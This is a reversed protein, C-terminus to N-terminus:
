GKKLIEVEGFLLNKKKGNQDEVILSGDEGIDLARARFIKGKRKYYIEKGLTQCHARYLDLGEKEKGPYLNSFENIIQGALSLSDFNEPLSSFVAGARDRIEEPFGGPPEILNIGIGVLIGQVKASLGDLLSETLIGGVKKQGIQLDNVWRLDITKGYNKKLALQVASASLITLIGPYAPLSDEKWAFTMYLGGSPSYFNRGQRGRGKKQEKAIYILRDFPGESIRKKALDNTSSVSESLYLEAESWPGKLLRRLKKEKENM